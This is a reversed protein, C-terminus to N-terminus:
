HLHVFSKKRRKNVLLKDLFDLTKQEETNLIPHLNKKMDYYSDVNGAPQYVAAVVATRGDDSTARALGMTKTGKWVLQTFDRNEESLRPHEFNYNLKQGYWGEVARTCPTAATKNNMTNLDIAALSLGPQEYKGIDKQLVGQVAIRDAIERAKRYLDDSWEVAESGHRRRLENHLSLCDTKLAATVLPDPFYIPFVIM